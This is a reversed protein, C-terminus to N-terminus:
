HLNYIWKLIVSIFLLNEYTCQMSANQVNPKIFSFNLLILSIKTLCPTLWFSKANCSSLFSCVTELQHMLLDWGWKFSKNLIASIKSTSTQSNNTDVFDYCVKFQWKSGVPLLTLFRLVLYIECDSRENSIVFLIDNRGFPLFRLLCGSKEITTESRM